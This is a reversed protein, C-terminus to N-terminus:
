YSLIILIGHPQLRKEALTKDSEIDTNEAIQKQTLKIKEVCVWPKIFSQNFFNSERCLVWKMLMNVM